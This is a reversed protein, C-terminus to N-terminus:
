KMITKQRLCQLIKKLIETIVPLENHEFVETM